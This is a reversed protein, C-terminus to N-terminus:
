NKKFNNSTINKYLNSMDNDNFDMSEKKSDFNNKLDNNSLINSLNTKQSRTSRM